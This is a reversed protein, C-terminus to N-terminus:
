KLRWAAIFMGNANLEHPWLTIQPEAGFLPERDLEPHAATFAEVVRTTESRTLTCVSYILRGGPRLSGAVHNLLGLQTAALERVDVPTTNWRAHPNRQWTGVGSCPADVLIGDFKTKTPLKASGDWAVTRYNFIEARAARRKLVGLRRENRDSAWIVGRNAMLDALHLLKGGEGACADWWTQGSIPACAHGVLQSALDQIEFAGAHFAPTLFLDQTGTYRLADPARTSLECDGLDKALKHAHGPRARIWLAPERQIQRLYEAPLDMEERLWEPVARAALAEAKVSKEDAIFREQLAASQELRKQFSAKADLWQLWRFYAFVARSVARKERAGLRKANYLYRRLAADAPLDRAISALVRAAHNLTASDPM